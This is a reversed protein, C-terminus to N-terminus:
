KLNSYGLPFGGRPLDKACTFITILPFSDSWSTSSTVALTSDLPPKTTEETSLLTLRRTTPALGLALSTLFASLRPCTTIRSSFRKAASRGAGRLAGLGVGWVM